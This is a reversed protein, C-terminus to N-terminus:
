KRSSSMSDSRLYAESSRGCVRKSWVMRRVSKKKLRGGEAFIWVNSWILWFWGKQAEPKRRDTDLGYVMLYKNKHFNKLNIITSEFKCNWDSSYKEMQKFSQWGWRLSDLIALVVQWLPSRLLQGFQSNIFKNLLLIVWNAFM